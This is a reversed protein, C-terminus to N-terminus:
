TDTVMSKLKDTPNLEDDLYGYELGFNTSYHTPHEVFFYTGEQFRDYRGTISPLLLRHCEERIEYLEEETFTTRDGNEDLYPKGLRQTLLLKGLTREMIEGAATPTEVILDGICRGAFKGWENSRVQYYSMPALNELLLEVVYTVPIGAIKEDGRKEPTNVGDIRVDIQKTIAIEPRLYTSIDFGLDVEITELPLSSLDVWCRITDGDIVEYRLLKYTYSLPEIM